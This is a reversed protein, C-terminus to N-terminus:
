KKVSSFHTDDDNLLNYIFILQNDCIARLNRMKGFFMAPRKACLTENSGASQTFHTHNHSHVTENNSNCLDFSCIYVFIEFSITETTSPFARQKLSSNALGM